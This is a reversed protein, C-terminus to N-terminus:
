VKVMVIMTTLFIMMIMIIMMEVSLIMMTVANNAIKKREFALATIFLFHLM